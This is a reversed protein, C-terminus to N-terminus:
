LSEPWPSTLLLTTEPARGTDAYRIQLGDIERFQAQISATPSTNVDAAGDRGARRGHLRRVLGALERRVGRGDAEGARPADGLRSAARERSPSHVYIEDRGTPTCRDGHSGRWPPRADSSSFPRPSHTRPKRRCTTASEARSRATRTPARLSRRTSAQTLTPRATPT